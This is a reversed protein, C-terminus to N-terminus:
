RPGERDQQALARHLRKLYKRWRAEMEALTGPLIEAEIKKLGARQSAELRHFGDECFYSTGDFRVRILPLKDGHQIRAVYEEVTDELLNEPRQFDLRIANIRLVAKSSERARWRRIEVQCLIALLITSTFGM